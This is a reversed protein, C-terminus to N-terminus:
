KDNSEKKKTTTRLCNGKFIITPRVRDVVNAFVTLQATAQRKDLGSERNHACVYRVGKIDYTKADDLVFLLLKQDMNAIDGDQYDGSSPM